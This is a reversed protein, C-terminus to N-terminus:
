LYHQRKLMSELNAILQAVMAGGSELEMGAPNALVGAGGDGDGDRDGSGGALWLGCLCCRSIPM